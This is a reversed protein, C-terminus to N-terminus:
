NAGARKPLSVALYERVTRALSRFQELPVTVTGRRQSLQRALRTYHDLRIGVFGYLADRYVFLEDSPLPARDGVV